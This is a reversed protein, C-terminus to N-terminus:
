QGAANGATPAHGRSPTPTGAVPRKAEILARLRRWERGGLPKYVGPFQRRLEAAHTRYREAIAGMALVTAPGLRRGQTAATERLMEIAVEADQHLGLVDQLATMRESFEIAPKGYVPGVFELAYRVKKADIRLLHYDTAPSNPTIPDGLKRVRRYRKELLDPAAALIPTRGPAFSKAPGRVLVVGFREILRDYRRSNLVALMRRRATSRRAQLLAEIADLAHAEEPSFGQRWEAMRELQVDLDRVEGLAAAVWGLEERIRQVRPSLFPRFAAMAARMRRAAVRMDHLAEIDEGLRTGPENAVFTGFQKRLVAFAVESATMSAGIETSGTNPQRPRPHQGTAVLAAEFKSPGAATLAATAVLVDVFRRARDVADTDVEVEVRALRVPRDEGTPITTDDLAIEGINGTTDALRFTRRSTHLRFIEGLARRGAMTRLMVSCPGAVQDLEGPDSGTLQETVERRSRIGGSADAMSKLTLEAGDGKERVRCTFGSRHVRWDATDYYVDRLEKVPGRMVTYGPIAASELFRAVARLDPATFQWEVETIDTPQAQPM